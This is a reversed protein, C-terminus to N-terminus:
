EDLLERALVTAGVVAAPMAVVAFFPVWFCAQTALGFGWVTSRHPRLLARRAAADLGRAELPRALLEQAVLHAAVSFGLVAAVVTGIVPVLGLAAVVLALMVSRTVLAAGDVSSRWAGVEQDPVEGGLMRETERWIKAYFPDGLTLTLAVFLTWGAFLYAALVAVTALWRGVDGFGSDGLFPTAWSVLDGVSFLLGVFGAVLVALVLLAPLVGLVMLAPRERWM